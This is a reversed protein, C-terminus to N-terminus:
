KESLILSLSTFDQCLRWELRLNTSYFKSDIDKVTQFSHTKRLMAYEIIKLLKIMMVKLKCPIKYNQHNWGFIWNLDILIYWLKFEFLKKEDVFILKWTFISFLILCNFFFFFGTKKTISRFNLAKSNEHTCRFFWM